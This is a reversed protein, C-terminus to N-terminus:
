YPSLLTRPTPTCHSDKQEWHGRGWCLLQLIPLEPGGPEMSQMYCILHGWCLRVPVSSLEFRLSGSDRVHGPRPLHLYDLCLLLQKINLKCFLGWFFLLLSNLPLLTPDPGRQGPQAGRGRLSPSFPGRLPSGRGRLVPPHSSTHVRQPDWPSQGGEGPELKDM